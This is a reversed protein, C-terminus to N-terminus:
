RKEETKDDDDDDDDEMKQKGQLQCAFGTKWPLINRFSFKGQNFKDQKM